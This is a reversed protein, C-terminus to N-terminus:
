IIQNLICKAECGHSFVSPCDLTSLGSVSALHFLLFSSLCIFYCFSGCCLFFVLFMLLLIVHFQWPYIINSISTRVTVFIASNFRNIPDWGRQHKSRWCCVICIFFCVIFFVTCIRTWELLSCVMVWFIIFM